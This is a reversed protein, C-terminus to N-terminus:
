SAGIIRPKKSCELKLLEMERRKGNCGGVVGEVIGNGPTKLINVGFLRVMQVVPGVPNLQDGMRPKWDIYLQTDPGISRQFSVIDGAKLNKEKVFRSWGKTLVYSQSSNWYSYRFRWVKGGVDEFNLLVGKTSNSGSLLPFHKEAHQKPIVLRNLKGVDSPTVTKEFLQERAKSGRDSLIGSGFSVMAFENKKVRKGNGDVLGCNRKKQEFEDSYTHKRLMDVIEAKSHSNLFATEFDNDEVDEAVTLPKLNIVADKGRFRQAAIDYAKAAEVEENFTGLWVRQHKEYIQAGWRGNPQPVVGKYKSSPLKKSEAEVGSESDLISSTGSGVRCLTNEPSSLKRAAAFPPSLATIPSISISISDSSASEDICSGADM